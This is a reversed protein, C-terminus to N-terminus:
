SSSGTMRSYLAASPIARCARASICLLALVTAIAFKAETILLAPLPSFTYWAESSWGLHIANALRAGVREAPGSATWRIVTPIGGLQLEPDHRFPHDLDKWVARPGVCVELLTGGTEAILRRAVPLTRRVDPCWPQGATGASHPMEISASASTKLLLHSVANCDM